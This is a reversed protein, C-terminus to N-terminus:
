FKRSAKLAVLQKPKNPGEKSYTKRLKFLPKRLGKMLSITMGSSTLWCYSGGKNLVKSSNFLEKLCKRKHEMIRLAKKINPSVKSTAMLRKTRTRKRIMMRKLTTKLQLTMM